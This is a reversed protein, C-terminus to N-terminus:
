TALDSIKKEKSAAQGFSVFLKRQAAVKGQTEGGGDTHNRTLKEAACLCTGQKWPGRSVRVPPQIIRLSCIRHTM